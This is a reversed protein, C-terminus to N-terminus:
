LSTREILILISIEQHRNQQHRPSGIVNLLPRQLPNSLIFQAVFVM